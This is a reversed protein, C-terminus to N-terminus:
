DLSWGRDLVQQWQCQSGGARPWQNSFSSSSTSGSSAVRAHKNVWSYVGVNFPDVSREMDSGSEESMSGTGSSSTVSGVLDKESDSGSGDPAMAGSM